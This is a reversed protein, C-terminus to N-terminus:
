LWLFATCLYEESGGSDFISKSKDFLRIEM